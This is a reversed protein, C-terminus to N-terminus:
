EAELVLLSEFTPPYLEAQKKLLHMQWIHTIVFLTEETLHDLGIRGREPNGKKNISFKIGRM